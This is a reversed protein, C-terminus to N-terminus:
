EDSEPANLERPKGKTLARISAGAFRITQFVTGIAGGITGILFLIKGARNVWGLGQALGSFDFPFVAWLMLSSIAGTATTVLQVLRNTWNTPRIILLGNGVIQAGIALQLSWLVGPFSSKIFSLDWGPLARVLAFLGLHIVVNVIAEGRSPLKRDKKEDNRPAM